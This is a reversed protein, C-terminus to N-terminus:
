AKSYAISIVGVFPTYSARPQAQDLLREDFPNQLVVDLSLPQSQPLRNFRNVLKLSLALQHPMGRQVVLIRMLIWCLTEWGKPLSPIPASCFVYNVPLAGVDNMTVLWLQYWLSIYGCRWYDKQVKMFVVKISPWIHLTNILLAHDSRQEVIYKMTPEGCFLLWVTVVWHVGNAKNTSGVEPALATRCMDIQWGDRTDISRPARKENLENIRNRLYNPAISAQLTQRPNGMLANQIYVAQDAEM